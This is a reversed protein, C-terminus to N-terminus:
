NGWPTSGPPPKKVYLMQLVAEEDEINPCQKLREAIKEKEKCDVLVPGGVQQSTMGCHLM